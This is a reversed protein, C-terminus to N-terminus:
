DDALGMRPGDDADGQAERYAQLATRVAAAVADTAAQTPDSTTRWDGAPGPRDDMRTGPELEVTKRALAAIATEAATLYEDVSPEEVRTPLAELRTPDPTVPLEDLDGVVPVGAAALAKRNRVNQRIGALYVGQTLPIATEAGALPTLVEECLFRRVVARYAPARTAPFQQNVRSVLSASAYGLSQRSFEPREPACDPAISVAQAFRKWLLDPDERSKPVLVIHFHDTPIHQLWPRLVLEASHRLAFHRAPKMGPLRTVVRPPVRGVVSMKRAYEAWLVRMGSRVGTQWQSPAAATSDRLTLVVHVDAAGLSSAVHAIQDPTAVFLFEMSLISTCDHALMSAAMEDWVRPPKAGPKWDLLDNVAKVQHDWRKGPWNVGYSPLTARNSTLRQQLYTTGSKMTGIHLYVAPHASTDESQPM